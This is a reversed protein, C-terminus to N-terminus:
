KVVAFKGVFNGYKSEVHYVYIGAAISRGGESMLDWNEAGSGDTHELTTILDGSLTYIRITCIDPLNVFQIKRTGEQLEWSANALYPNPVVHIKKLNQSVTSASIQRSSFYFTDAPTFLQAGKIEFVDGSDPLAGKSVDFSVKWVIRDYDTLFGYGNFLITDGLGYDSIIIKEGFEPNWKWPDGGEDSFWCSVRSSDTLDWVHFPVRFSESLFYGFSYWYAFDTFNAADTLSHTFEIRYDHTFYSDCGTTRDLQTVSITSSDGDKGFSSQFVTDPVRPNNIAVRLGNVVPFTVSVGDFQTQDALVLNNATVDFLNWTRYCDENIYMMYDHGTISDPDIVHVAISNDVADGDGGHIYRITNEPSTYGLPDARPFVKVIYSVSDPNKGQYANQLGSTDYAVVAYWYERGNVLGTDTFSHPLYANGGYELTVIQQFDPSINGADDEIHNGWTSGRDDSRYIKYGRFDLKGNAPDRSAESLTDWSLLACHMGGSGKVHPLDPPSQVVMNGRLLERAVDATTRLLTDSGAALLAFDFRITSNAPFSMTEFASQLYCWDNKTTGSGFPKPEMYYSPIVQEIVFAGFGTMGVSDPTSLFRTGMVGPKIGGWGFDYHDGDEMWGMDRSTDYKAIDNNQGYESSNNPDIGGIDFNCYLGLAVPNYTNSSRNTILLTFFIVDRYPDFDWQHTIQTIELGTNDGKYRCVTEQSALPGGPFTDVVITERISDYVPKIVKEYVWGSDPDWVRWGYAPFGIELGTDDNADYDYTTTDTSVRIVPDLPGFSEKMDVLTDGQQNMGGIFFYMEKLYNHGSGAPWEGSPINDTGPIKRGGILGANNITTRLRGRDLVVTNEGLCPRNMFLGVLLIAAILSTRFSVSISFKM